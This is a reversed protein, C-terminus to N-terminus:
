GLSGGPIDLLREASEEQMITEIPCTDRELIPKIGDLVEFRDHFTTHLLDPGKEGVVDICNAYYQFLRREAGSYIDRRAM